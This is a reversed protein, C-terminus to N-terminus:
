KRRGFTNLLASTALGLLLSSGGFLAAYSLINISLWNAAILRYNSLSFPQTEVLETRTAPLALVSKKVKDFMVMRGDLV